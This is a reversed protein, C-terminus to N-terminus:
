KVGSQSSVRHTVIPSGEVLVYLGNKELQIAPIRIEEVGSQSSVRHTVIPPREVPENSYQVASRLRELAAALGQESQHTYLRAIVTDGAVVPDGTQCYFEIGAAPDVVDSTVKRGAGLMVSVQGTTLAEIGAVYGTETAVLKSTKIGDFLHKQYTDPDDICSVDGGQGQVMERFKRWAQGNQLAHAAKGLLQEFPLDPFVSAQLLM